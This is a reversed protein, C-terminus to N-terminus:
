SATGPQSLQMIIADAVATQGAANPHMLTVGPAFDWGTVWPASSCADHGRGDQAASVLEAGTEQAAHRTALALKRADELLTKQQTQPIPLSACPKGDAPLVDLYDVLVIRAQPAKAHVARVVGAINDGVQALATDVASDSWPTCFGYQKLYNATPDSPTTTLTGQCAAAILQGVYNIDNGGVTITVLRTEATVSEIQPPLSVMSGNAGRTVQSQTTLDGTVAGGCAADVLALKLRTAVVAPYAAASRGCGTPDAPGTPSISAGAAYSSGLAVYTSGPPPAPTNTAAAPASAAGTLLASAVMAASALPFLSLLRRPV